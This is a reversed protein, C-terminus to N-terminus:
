PGFHHSTSWGDIRSEHFLIFISLPSYFLFLLLVENSYLHLYLDMNEQTGVQPRSTTPTISSYSHVTRRERTEKSLTTPMTNNHCCHLDQNKEPSERGHGQPRWVMDGLQARSGFSPTFGCNM